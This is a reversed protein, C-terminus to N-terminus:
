NFLSKVSKSNRKSYGCFKKKGCSTTWDPENYIKWHYEAIEKLSVSKDKIKQIMTKHVASNLGFSYDWTGNRNRRPHKLYPDFSGNEAAMTKIFDWNGGSVQWFEALMANATEGKWKRFSPSKDIYEKPM